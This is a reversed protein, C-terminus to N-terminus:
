ENSPNGPDDVSKRGNGEFDAQDKKNSGNTIEVQGRLDKEEDRTLKGVTLDVLGKFQERIGKTKDEKMFNEFKRVAHQPM